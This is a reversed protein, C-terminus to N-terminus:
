PFDQVGLSKLYAIYNELGARVLPEGGTLRVKRIGLGVFIRVLRELEAWSCFRTTSAIIKQIPPAAISAGFIAVTLSLFACTPSRVAM